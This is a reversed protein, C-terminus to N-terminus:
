PKNERSGALGVAFLAFMVPAVVPVSINVFAQIAYCIIAFLVAIVCPNDKAKRIMQLGGSILLSFYCMLSFPGMTIFYQLYENHASDYIEQYKSVMDNFDGYYTVIGYTDPGFGFLKHILPFKLYNEIAIRWNYGRHTGWEDNFYLYEGISGYRTLNGVINVDILVYILAIAGLVILGLWIFQWKHGLYDNKGISFHAAIYIAFCIIVLSVVVYELKSFGSLKQLIGEMILVHDPMVKNIIDIGYIVCAFTAVIVFYRKIGTKSNFLFLPLFAFLAGLALYSNDSLGMVIAFFTIAMCFYYIVAKWINREIAFLVTATGMVLAVYSTYSNVNGITGMFMNYQEPYMDAKFGLLDMQFYDTIGLLCVLMGALLFIDLIWKKLKLTKAVILTSIGYLLLLFCGTYRGENGWFSEWKFDSQITSVIAILLFGILAWEPLTFVKKLNVDKLKLKNIYGIFIGVLTMIVIFAITVIYYFSYKTILIDFYYDHYVLPLIGLIVSVYILSLCSLKRSQEETIYKKKNEM